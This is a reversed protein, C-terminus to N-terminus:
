SSNGHKPLRLGPSLMQKLILATTKAIYVNTFLTRDWM